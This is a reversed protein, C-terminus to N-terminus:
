AEDVEDISQFCYIIKKLGSIDFIRNIEPGINIAFVKGGTKQLEKYRGIIMGIGSSDMFGVHTFDFVINKAKSKFFEREVNFRIDDASHHDIEGKIKVVLNGNRDVCNIEV